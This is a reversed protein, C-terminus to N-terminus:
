SISTFNRKVPFDYAPFIAITIATVFQIEPVVAEKLNVVGLVTEFSFM